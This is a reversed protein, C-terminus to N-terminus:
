SQNLLWDELIVHRIKPARLLSTRSPLLASLWPRRVMGSVARLGLSGLSRGSVQEQINDSLRKFTAPILNPEPGVHIVTTVGSSLLENVGDWLRQPHDVWRHLIDRSNVDDYRTNGTVLSLVDPDPAHFGGSMKQMMVAARNPINRQWMISTHLPPWRHPNERMHVQRPLREQMIKKFRRVTKQQGLLLVTNPSLVSSIGIM